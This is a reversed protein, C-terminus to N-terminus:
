SRPVGAAPAAATPAAGTTGPQADVAPADGMSIDPFLEAQTTNPGEKVEFVRV